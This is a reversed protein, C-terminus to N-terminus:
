IRSKDRLNMEGNASLDGHRRAELGCMFGPRFGNWAWGGREVAGCVGGRIGELWEAGGCGRGRGEESSRRRGARARGGWGGM